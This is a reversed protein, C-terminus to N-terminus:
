RMWRRHSQRAELRQTMWGVAYTASLLLSAVVVMIIKIADFENM